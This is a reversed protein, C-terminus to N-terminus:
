FYVNFFPWLTVSCESGHSIEALKNRPSIDMGGLVRKYNFLCFCKPPFGPGFLKFGVLDATIKDKDIIRENIKFCQIALYRARREVLFGVGGVACTLLFAALLAILATKRINM